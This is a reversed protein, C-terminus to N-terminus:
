LCETIEWLSKRIKMNPEDYSPDALYFRLQILNKFDMDASKLILGIYAWILEAQDEFSSPMTQGDSLFGNLGSLFLLRTDASVEVGHHHNQYQPFLQPPNHPRITM